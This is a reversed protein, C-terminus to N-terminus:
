ATAEQDNANNELAPQASPAEVGERTATEFQFVPTINCLDRRTVRGRIVQVFATNPISLLENIETPDVTPQLAFSQGLTTANEMHEAQQIRQNKEVAEWNTESGGESGKTSPAENDRQRNEGNILFQITTSPLNAIRRGISRMRGKANSSDPEIQAAAEQELAKRARSAIHEYADMQNVQPRYISGLRSSIYEQTLKTQSTYAVMSRLNGLLQYGANEGLTELVGDVNQTAFVAYLGLSRAIPLTASEDATLLAQVEDIVLAVAKQDPDTGWRDGRRKIANYIRKKLLASVMIGAKGYVAEPLAVGIRQGKVVDEVPTGAETVAWTALKEHDTIQSLWLSAIGEISGRQKEPLQHFESLIYGHARRAAVSWRSPDDGLVTAQHTRRQRTKQDNGKAADAVIRSVADLTYEGEGLTALSQATHAASRILKAAANSWYPDSEAESAGMDRLTDAVDDPSLGEIPNLDATDPSIVTYSTAEIERPLQGKGDLVFLGDETRQLWDRILPRITGSTKGSGTGGLVLLHTELDHKTLGMAYNEGSPAFPDFRDRLFGASRGLELFPSNDRKANEVQQILANEDILLNARVGSQDMTRDVSKEASAMLNATRRERNQTAAPAKRTAGLILAVVGLVGAGTGGSTVAEKVTGLNAATASQVAEWADKTTTNTQATDSGAEHVIPPLVVVAAAVVFVLGATKAALAHLGNKVRVAENRAEQAFYNETLDTEIFSEAAPSGDRDILPLRYYDRLDDPADHVEPRLFLKGAQSAAKREIDDMDLKVIARLFAWAPRKEYVYSATVGILAVLLTITALLGTTQPVLLLGLVVGFASIGAAYRVPKKLSELIRERNQEVQKSAHYTAMSRVYRRAILAAESSEHKDEPAFPATALWTTREGNARKLADELQKTSDSAQEPNALLREAWRGPMAAKEPMGLKTFVAQFGRLPMAALQCLIPGISNVIISPGAVYVGIRAAFAAPEAYDPQIGFGESDVVVTILTILLVLALLTAWVPGWGPYVGGFLMVGITTAELGGLTAGIKGKANLISM